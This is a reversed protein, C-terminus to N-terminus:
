VYRTTWLYTLSKGIVPPPPPPPPGGGGNTATETDHSNPPHWRLLLCHESVPSTSSVGTSSMSLSAKSSAVYLTYSVGLFCRLVLKYITPTDGNFRCPTGCCLQVVLALCFNSLTTSVCLLVMALAYSTLLSTSSVESEAKSSLSASHFATSNSRSCSAILSFHKMDQFSESVSVSEWCTTMLTSMLGIQYSHNNSKFQEHILSPQYFEPLVQALFLYFM